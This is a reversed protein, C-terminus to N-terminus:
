FHGGQGKYTELYGHWARGRVPGLSARAGRGWLTFCPPKVGLTFCPPFIGMTSFLVLNVGQHFVFNQQPTLPFCFGYHLVFGNLV